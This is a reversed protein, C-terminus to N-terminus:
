KTTHADIFAQVLQHQDARSPNTLELCDGDIVITASRVPRHQLWTQVLGVVAKVAVPTLTVILAGITLADVPKAGPPIQDSRVHEVTEVDLELLRCRLQSALSDLEERDSDPGGDIRLTLQRSGERM